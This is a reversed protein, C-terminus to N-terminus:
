AKLTRYNSWVGGGKVNLITYMGVSKEKFKGVIFGVLNVFKEFKNQFSVRYTESLDETWWWSNNVTCEAITYTMCTQLCSELLILIFSWHLEMRIRSSSLQGCVLIVYVMASHVTFLHQHSCLKMELFLNSFNTFRTAKIIPFNQWSARDCSHLIKKLHKMYNIAFYTVTTLMFVLGRFLCDLTRFGASVGGFGFWSEPGGLRRNM